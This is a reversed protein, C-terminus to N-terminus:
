AADSRRNHGMNPLDEFREVTLLDRMEDPTGVVDTAHFTTWIVDTESHVARMTGPQSIFMHPAEFRVRGQETVCVGRGKSILNLHAHKHIKGVVVSGAPLFIERAYMGPAFYQTVPFDVHMTASLMTDKLDFITQRFDAAPISAPDVALM